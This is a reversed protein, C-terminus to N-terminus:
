GNNYKVYSFEFDVAHEDDIQITEGYNIMDVVKNSHAFNHVLDRIQEIFREETM